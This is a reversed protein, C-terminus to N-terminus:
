ITALAARSKAEKKLAEEKKSTAKVAEEVMVAYEMDSLEAYQSSYYMTKNVENFISYAVFQKVRIAGDNGTGLGVIAGIHMPDVFVNLTVCDKYDQYGAIYRLGGIHLGKVATRDDGTDVQDWNELAIVEGVKVIHGLKQGCLFADGRDKQVAPQFVRDGVDKTKVYTVLGTNEDVTKGHRSIRELEEKENLRYKDLLEEVVKYGVLLGERTISVQPTTAAKTAVEKSYGQESMLKKVAIESTYPADIYEALLKAKAETFYPNRLFRAWFKILPKIDLNKEVAKIIKDALVKPIAINSVVGSETQLYFKNTSKNVMIYPSETEVLEKYSEQTLPTFEDIVATLEDLTLNRDESKAQLDQMQEYKKEDFSVSFPVGNVSGSILDGLRNVQIM